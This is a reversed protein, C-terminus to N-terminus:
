RWEHKPYRGSLEKKIATYSDNWFATLDDTTQVPRSNPALLEVLPKVRGQCIRIEDNVDYLDQIKASFVPKGGRQYRLRGFRGNPLRLKIPVESEMLSLVERGIWAKIEPLVEKRKLDKLSRAGHCCQEIILSKAETDISDIGYEPFAEALLNVRDIFEEVEANWSELRAKGEVVLRSLVSAAQDLDVELDEEREIELDLYTAFKRHVVRKRKEDFVVNDGSKFSDPYLAELWEKEIASCFSLVTTVEGRQNGIESAECAVFFATTGIRSERSLMARRGGVMDCRYTGRDLRRCVRDPFGVLLCNKFVIEDSFSDTIASSGDPRLKLLQDVIRGAQSATQSHIGLTRCFRIDFNKERAANWLNIQFRIDCQISEDYYRERWQETEKDVKKLLFGRTQSLAALLCVEDFCGLDLSALLMAAYRPHVPFSNMLKGKETLSGGEDIAGLRLLLTTADELRRKDPPDIWPFTNFDEVGSSLLGLLSEALDLRAIEPEHAAPRQHHEKETWLRVCLGSATRGARGARQKASADSIKEIWLTNIARGPDYRAIRAQGSDVVVRVDAITLSTEAVNTAVIIKRRKSLEMALDQDKPSLEGHLPLLQFESASLRSGLSSITRGIEYAGPMFILVHGEDIEQVAQVTVQTALEWIPAKSRALQNDIFRIEVPFVRGETKISLCPDLYRQLSDTDLTASMVVLKLDPRQTKQLMMARALAIDAQASREHFEDFVITSIKSLIPDNIMKRLFVGETAFLLKTRQSSLNQHRIQYGVLDGLREGMEFAVRKALMRAAIRRPQLIMAGGSDLHGHRFLIQPVQTSKGSGTPAELILRNSRELASAFESEIELIPLKM